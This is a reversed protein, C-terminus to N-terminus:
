KRVGKAIVGAIASRRRAEEEPSVERRTVKVKYGRVVSESAAPQAVPFADLATVIEEPGIVGIAVGPLDDRVLAGVKERQKKEPAIFLLHTFGAAVCKKMNALEHAADTTVSIECGVTIKDRYLVVDARGDHAVDEIAARFGREEGLRKILHQLYKHMAGGRGQSALPASAKKAARTKPAPKALSVEAVAGEMVAVEGLEEPEADAAVEHVPVPAAAAAFEALLGARPTAYDKRTRAIVARRREDATEEDVPPLAFTRLNFDNAAGGIRAIAEGRALACLDSAEFFSFGEALKKADGEGVRFVIRTHCSGLLADEIKPLDALQALMQHALVLGFRYKRGETALSVVGPTVFHQFEDAYCFFPRREEKPVAQRALALQNFKAVILSGLLYANEEGILGKALRALVVKGSEMANGLDLKAQRNGVIGRVIRSRLFADLRSLLPGISRAGIIAYEKEWFFRIDPDPIAKLYAARFQEDVLFRKLDALTGGEPHALLALVAEGLVTSMTDGWSTAFRRFIAVLDSALLTEEVESKAELINFGIPFEVDAPDFLIVDALREEPIRAVIDDILDGHPDLVALGHGAKIDALVLNGLLTSKGTGSGGILWTHAFRSELDLTALAREGRHRHEGLICEHGRAVAPLEKTRSEVRALAPHRVSQDPLHLLPVLEDASLLMGTRFSNRNLLAAAHVDDPYEDNGLPLLANGQPNAYQAIFAQTSRVLEWARESARAQAGVRVVVAYFTSATKAHAAPIFWPADAIRCGGDGDDLAQEIATAWPNRAREMLVQLMLFEGRRAEAMAGILPVYPDIRLDGSTPLPLFFEQSLGLDVVLHSAHGDWLEALRDDTPLAAVEPMFGEVHACVAEREATGCVLQVSVSGASGILEFSLPTLTASLTSLLQAMTDPHAAYEPSVAISLASLAGRPLAVFPPQEVFPELAEVRPAPLLLRKTGDILRSAWTPRKGDDLQTFGQPIFQPLLLLPRFPPELSVPEGSLMWGRGRVEWAYFSDTIADSLTGM